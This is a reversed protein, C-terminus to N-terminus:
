NERGDTQKHGDSSEGGFQFVAEGCALRETNHEHQDSAGEENATAEYENKEPKDGCSAPKADLYSRGLERQVAM